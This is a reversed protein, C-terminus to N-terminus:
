ACSWMRHNRIAYITVCTVGYRKALVTVKESSERIARVKEKTLKATRGRRTNEAKTIWRLNEIKNNKVNNDIHDCVLKAPRQCRFAELVLVHVRWTRRKGDCSLHVHEYGDPNTGPSLICVKGRVRRAQRSPSRVRGCDSVEYLGEYGKIARWQENSNFDAM